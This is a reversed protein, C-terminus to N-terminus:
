AAPLPRPPSVYACTTHAIHLLHGQLYLAYEVEKQIGPIFIRHGSSSCGVQVLFYTHPCITHMITSSCPPHLRPGQCQLIGCCGAGGPSTFRFILKQRIVTIKPKWCGFRMSVAVFSDGSSVEIIKGFRCRLNTASTVDRLVPAMAGLM